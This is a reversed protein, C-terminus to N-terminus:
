KKAIKRYALYSYVVTIIASLVVPGIVLWFAQEPFAVGALALVAAAMFLKGGLAHTKRWVEDNSLTWPTRIGISWNPESREILKGAAFFLVALGPAMFQGMNFRYGFTWFVTLTYLYFVFLMILSIFTDFSRRFKDINKKKPDIRPIIIFLILLGLAMFPAFFAGWFSGMYGDVEGRINWHSAVREPLM